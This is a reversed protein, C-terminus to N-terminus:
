VQAHGARWPRVCGIFSGFETVLLDRTSKLASKRWCSMFPKVRVKVRGRLPGNGAGEAEFLSAWSPNYLDVKVFSQQARKVADAEDEDDGDSEEDDIVDEPRNALEDRPSKGLTLDM